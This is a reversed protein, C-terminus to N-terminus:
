SISSGPNVALGWTRCALYHQVAEHLFLRAGPALVRGKIRARQLKTLGIFSLNVRYVLRLGLAALAAGSRAFIFGCYGLSSPM